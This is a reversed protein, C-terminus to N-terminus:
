GDYAAAYQVPMVKQGDFFPKDSATIVSDTWMLGNSVAACLEDKNEIIIRAKQAYYERGLSTNRTKLVYVFIDMGTGNVASIPVIFNYVDTTYSYLLTVAFNEGFLSFDGSVFLEYQGADGIKEAKYFDGKVIRGHINKQTLAFVGNEYINALEGGEVIFRATLPSDPAFARVCRAGAQLFAGEEAFVADITLDEPAILRANQKVDNKLNEIAILRANQKIDLKKIDLETQAALARATKENAAENEALARAKDNEAKIKAACDKEANSIETNKDFVIQSYQLKFLEIDNQAQWLEALPAAGANFLAAAEREKRTLQELDYEYKNIRIAYKADIDRLANDRAAAIPALDPEYTEITKNKLETLSLYLKQLDAKGTEYQETLDTINKKMDSVDFTILTAGKKVSDGKKAHTKLVRLSAMHYLNIYEERLLQGTFEAAFNLTGSKVKEVEVKTLGLNNLTSSLLTLVAMLCLFTIILRVPTRQM